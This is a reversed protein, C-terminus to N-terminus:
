LSRGKGGAASGEPAQAALRKLLQIQGAHYVDHLAIGYIMAANSVTSGRSVKHLDSASFETIMARFRRHMEELLALDTRWSNGGNTTPRVFWNSGKVPFAGRKEGLIRRRVAYKWYAAHVVIEWINHRGPAPRWALAEADLGRISGRLNPGHWAKRKYGEDVMRLLLTIEPALGGREKGRM